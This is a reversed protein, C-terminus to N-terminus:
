IGLADLSEEVESALSGVAPGTLSVKTRPAAERAAAAERAVEEFDGYTWDAGLALALAVLIEWNAKGVPSTAAPVWERVRGDTDVVHGRTEIPLSIPLVVHALSTTANEASAMAVVLAMGAIEKAVAPDRGPDAGIALCARAGEFAGGGRGRAGGEPELGADLLGKLNSFARLLVVRRNAAEQAAAFAARVTAAPVHGEELVFVVARASALRERIAGLDDDQPRRLAELIGAAPLDEISHDAESLDGQLSVVTAGKSKARRVKLDLLFREHRSRPGVVVVLDADSIADSRALCSAFDGGLEEWRLSEIGILRARLADRALRAVLHGEENTLNGGAVVAVHSREAPLKERIRALAEEWSAEVLQKGTRVLPTRLRPRSALAQWGYRGKACLIGEESDPVTGMYRGNLTEVRVDCALSCLPCVSATGKLRLPVQKRLSRRDALAGTPCADVCAGCSVCTSEQWPRDFPAQVEVVIGRHAFDIAYIGCVEGCVRLCRGCAVCKGPERVIFPHREDPRKRLLEGAYTEQTAAAGASQDRLDCDDVSACGCGLCREGERRAEEDTFNTAYEEFTLVREAPALVRTPVRRAEKVDGLDARTVDVKEHAYSRPPAIPLGRLFLDIAEAARHGAGVAEIAIKPGTVADGAAFVKERSTRGTLADARIRGDPEVDVGSGAVGSPDVVQGVALIASEVPIVFESGKIPVPRARGSADPEGLRMKVCRIGSLRGGEVVFELPQTLFSLDVGEEEAEKVERPDAPMEERGRRYILTVAAGRRRASRAADIATNGGGIVAVERPLEVAEGLALRRLFEIGQLVAPHDRDPISLDGSRWAGLGLFVADYDRELEALSLDVGLRAGNRLVIGMAELVRLERDLVDQPLRFDPIGYRLMGGMKPMADFVTAAHGKRRLFYACSLGAPGGGVVAVRKGTGPECPPVYGADRDGLFRKMHRIQVPEEAIQRRCAEECPSPCIRGFTAPFPLKEYLVRLGELFLGNAALSVYGQCDTHAPCALQCPGVCDGFHHSLLLELAARRIERALASDTSVTMGDKAPTSCAKVVGLGEVEVTCIGCADFPDLRPEACLTPIEIGSRRALALITEGTEGAVDRGDIKVAIM